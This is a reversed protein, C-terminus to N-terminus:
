EQPSGREMVSSHGTGKTSVDNLFRRITVALSSEGAEIECEWLTLVDWGLERLTAQNATDRAANHALKPLWYAANSKPLRAIKCAPDDHQHWFCGHVFITKRRRRFVLDPKGPLDQSHLRYRYGMSHVLRRVAKEPVTGKSRINAMIQSRRKPDVSDVM